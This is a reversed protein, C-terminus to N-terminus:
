ETLAAFLSDRQKQDGGTFSFGSSMPQRVKPVAIV